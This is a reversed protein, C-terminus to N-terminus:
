ERVRSTFSLAYYRDPPPPAPTVADRDVAPDSM